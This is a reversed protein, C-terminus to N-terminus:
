GAKLIVQCVVYKPWYICWIGLRTHEDIILFGTYYKNAKHFIYTHLQGPNQTQKYYRIRDYSFNLFFFRPLLFSVSFGNLMSWHSYFAYWLSVTWKEIDSILKNRLKMRWLGKIQKRNGMNCSWYTYHQKTTEQCRAEHHAPTVQFITYLLVCTRLTAGM